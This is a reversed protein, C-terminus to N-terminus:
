RHPPCTPTPRDCFDAPGGNVAVMEAFKELAKGSTLATRVKEEAEAETRCIGAIMLMNVCLADTVAKLRPEPNENKLYSVAEFVELANGATRGLVENMDTILVGTRVGDKEAVTKISQGLEEARLLSDMFAGNGTKIDMTLADLGACLKKSLISATILPVSEVTATVDRVAYLIRDAPAMEKTQGIILCGVQRVIRQFAPIDPNTNYGPIANMKDLTGGTHGLGRGSIMPVYCGCAAAIPALMLSVKDGVGGTSHKDIVPGDMSDWKLVQGSEKMSQTLTLIEDADMGNLFVSMTFAAAQAESVGGSAIGAVFKQIDSASLIQRDRKKRIIEPEKAASGETLGFKERIEQEIKDAVAPNERLYQKANDRGQGIRDNGYAYWAGSKKIIGHEAAIDLISGFRSIGAGFDVDFEWSGFPPAMKNKVVKVRVRNGTVDEGSKITNIKRIDLRISAYFKLANGGTTVEPNGFVVGIKQRLQNIFILITNSRGITATLKRLAQSMLRAQSAMQSDGMEGEIESKPVLAAVSDVVIVDVAASRVLIDAIELAQEGYDPQSLLIDDINVGLKRAYNVDLAHEADIFAAVGGLKQCEAIIHLTLTTKGSSEPGYIEVIRGRPLGGIGLALDIGIDGSSIVPHRQQTQEDMKMIAGKGYQKEIQSVAM